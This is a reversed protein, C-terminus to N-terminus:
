FTTSTRLERSNGSAIPIQTQACYLVRVDTDRSCALADFLEVQYPSPLSTMFMVKMVDDQEHWKANTETSAAPFTFSGRLWLPPPTSASPWARAAAGMRFRASKDELLRGLDNAISVPDPDTIVGAGAVAIAEGIAVGRGCVCPLGAIMAEVAAIGFNESFSPLVFVDAAAFAGWKEIGEVHGTWVTFGAIGETRARHWLSRAYEAPGDGAVVLVVDPHARRVLAFGALLGEINKKRDLRSLFLVVKQGPRVSYPAKTRSADPGAVGLPVVAGRLRVGLLEAKDWEQQSTFHVAAANVLIRREILQFSARKLLPRRQNVGYTSLIGLPRVIYPVGSLRAALAAALSSFSFM